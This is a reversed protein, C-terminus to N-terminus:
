ISRGYVPMQFSPVFRSLDSIDRMGIMGAEKSTFISSAMPQNRLISSEKPQSVVVVEDLNFVRSTDAISISRALSEPMNTNSGKFTTAYAPIQILLSGAAVTFLKEYQKM